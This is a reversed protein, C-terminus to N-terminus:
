RTLPMCYPRENELVFEWEEKCKCETEFLARVLETDGTLSYSRIGEVIEKDCIGCNHPGRTRGGGVPDCMVHYGANQLVDLVSWLYPPRFAGQKWYREVDTKSQITCLNMSIMDSYPISEKISRHMDDMAEKETLFPPKMMLYTKVGAGGKRAEHAAEIFDSFTHGKDICKERIRDNTTELGMAIYLPTDWVGTDVDSLFNEVVDKRVYETRSEAIILKGKFAEAVLKRAEPPVETEDLFSGSTFIKLMSYEDDHYNEQIWRIQGAIKKILESKSLKHYREHRYGCMRCRNWSCGGTKIIITLCQLVEENYLETGKWSALPKEFNKSIM